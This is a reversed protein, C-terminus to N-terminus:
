LSKCLLLSGGSHVGGHAMVEDEQVLELGQLDLLAM